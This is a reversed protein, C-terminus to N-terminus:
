DHENFNLGSKDEDKQTKKSLKELTRMSTRLGDVAGYIGLGIGVLVVWPGLAFRNQLWVALLTFGALPAATSLGLQTLWVLLSLNKM